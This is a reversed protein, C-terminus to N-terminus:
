DGRLPESRTTPTKATEGVDAHTSTHRVATMGSAKKGTSGNQSNGTAQNLDGRKRRRKVIMM